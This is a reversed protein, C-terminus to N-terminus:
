QILVNWTDSSELGKKFPWPAGQGIKKDNTSLFTSGGREIIEEGRVGSYGRGILFFNVIKIPIIVLLKNPILGIHRSLFGPFLCDGFAALKNASFCCGAINIM